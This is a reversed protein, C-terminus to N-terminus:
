SDASLAKNPPSEPLNSIEKIYDLRNIVMTIEEFGCNECYDVVSPYQAIRWLYWGFAEIEKQSITKTELYAYCLRWLFNFLKDFKQIYEKKKAEDFESNADFLQPITISTHRDELIKVTEVLDPDDDFYKAQAFLFETRRWALERRRTLVYSIISFIVAGAAILLEWKM